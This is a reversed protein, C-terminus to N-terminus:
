NAHLDFAATEVTGDRKVQVYLRYDGARPFVYPFSVRPPLASGHHLHPMAAAGAALALAAMPVSGTPHVHAFVDGEPALFVAHGAMGMYPELGALPRGDSSEAAFSLVVARGAVLPGPDVWRLTGSGDPFPFRPATASAPRAIQGVSDDGSPAAGGLAPLDLSATVTEDLGTAHVIDGFLRYHGAPLAPLRQEFRGPVIAEPHLHAVADRAPWRIAFLHMLHGHDPLLDDLRRPRVWGPDRLDLQLLDGSLAATAALPRYVMRRYSAAEQQWWRTAGVLALALVAAAGLMAVRGRWRRQRGPTEGAPLDAERTGAGAIGVLGVVLLALLVVLLATLAGPMGRVTRALAQVPVSATGTGAAGDAAVQVQWSGMQMLWLSGHYVRGDGPDPSAEDPTPPSLVGAGTLPLPVLTV